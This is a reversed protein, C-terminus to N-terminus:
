DAIPLRIFNGQVSSLRRISEEASRLRGETTEHTMIVLRATGQRSDDSTEDQRVSAISIENRGLIDAIDALVHPRDDVTMRLYFRRSLEEPPQLPLPPQAASRLISQFTLQTRGTAYDVIDAMVASATPLQGAGAGSFTTTGVADGTVAVINDAGDIQAITRERRILTPQVSVELRGDHLRSIALLKIKYGLEWAVQLDLLELCDIGQKVFAELPVRTSFALQTLISLKQAADTGDVDMAPDAEAYGREQAETLVEQYSQKRSLMHTLIFNSTGNLIAELSLIRNGTLAQTVASIIPIGGAVAAEFGITRGLDAALQFLETGHQYLLAKNATVIDKGSKLLRVMYDHAPNIGGMLQVALQIESDHIIDDVSDSVPINSPLYKRTKSTDRVVVRRLRIERGARVAIADSQSSLIRAVGSGVTGFGILAINLPPAQTMAITM